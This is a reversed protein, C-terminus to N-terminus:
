WAVACRVEGAVAVADAIPLKGGAVGLLPLALTGRPGAAAKTPSKAPKGEAKVTPAGANM